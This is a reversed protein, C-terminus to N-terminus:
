KEQTIIKKLINIFRSVDDETNFLHTSVRVVKKDLISREAVVVGYRDLERVLTSSNIGDVMFSVISTRRGDKPTYLKVNSISSLEDIITNALYINWQRIKEIGISRIYRLSELLGALLAYSRFGTQLRYPMERYVLSGKHIFASEGGISPPEISEAARSNCYLIGIGSPGCLWKSAPFVMFSCGLINVDVDMCGVSQASDLFLPVRTRKCIDEVPLVLGTNFLAHSLVILRTDDQVSSILEDVDVSGYDDKINISKVEVGRSRLRLWAYHNSPHEHEGDRIIISSGEKLMLGNAVINIGDTTSQTFVIEDVRCRILAALEKRTANTIDEIMEQSKNSDPGYENVALLFDTIARISELPLPANSASNLYICKLRPFMSKYYQVRDKIM